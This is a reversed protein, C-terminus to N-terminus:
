ATFHRKHFVSNCKLLQGKVRTLRYMSYHKTLTKFESHAQDTEAQHQTNPTRTDTDKDTDTDTDTDFFLM